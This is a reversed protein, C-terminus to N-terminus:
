RRRRRRRPRALRAVGAAGSAGVGLAGAGLAAYLLGDATTPVAPRFEEMAAGLVEGDANQLMLAPRAAPAAARLRTLEASLREHRALTRAMDAGRRGVFGDAPYAALAEARSLGAAAASRDFDAAVRGLADVEGALRQRYQQALEPGQAGLGAGLVLAVINLLRM